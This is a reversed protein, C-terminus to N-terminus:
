LYYMTMYPHLTGLLMGQCLLSAWRQGFAVRAALMATAARQPRPVGVWVLLLNTVTLSVPPLNAVPILSM